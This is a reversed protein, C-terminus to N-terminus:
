RSPTEMTSFGHSWQFPDSSRTHMERLEHYNRLFGKIRRETQKLPDDATRIDTM